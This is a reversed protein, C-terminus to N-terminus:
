GSYRHDNSSAPPGCPAAQTASANYHIRVNTSYQAFCRLEHTAVTPAVPEEKKGEDEVEKASKVGMQQTDSSVQFISGECRDVAVCRWVSLWFEIAHTNSWM